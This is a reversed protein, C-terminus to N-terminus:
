QENLVNMLFLFANRISETPFDFTTKTAGDIIFNLRQTDELSGNSNQRQGSLFISEVKSLSVIHGDTIKEVRRDPTERFPGANQTSPVNEVEVCFWSVTNRKINLEYFKHAFQQYRVSFVQNETM